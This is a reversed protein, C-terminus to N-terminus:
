VGMPIRTMPDLTYIKNEIEDKFKNHEVETMIKEPPNGPKDYVRIVRPKNTYAVLQMSSTLWQMFPNKM